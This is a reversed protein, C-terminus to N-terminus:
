PRVGAEARAMADAQRRHERVAQLRQGAFTRVEAPLGEAAAASTFLKDAKALSQSTELTYVRDFTSGSADPLKAPAQSPTPSQIQLKKCVDVLSREARLSDEAMRSAFERVRPDQSRTAASQASRLLAANLEATEQVFQLTEPSAAHVATANGLLVLAVWLAFPRRRNVNCVTRM